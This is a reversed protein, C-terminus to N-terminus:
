STSLGASYAFYLPAFVLKQDPLEAYHASSLVLGRECNPYDHLLRHMSRLRGSPGSKVEIPLVSGEVAVLYDVEASSSKAERSWHHLSTGHEVMLEQGVFQEAMAGRFISLLDAKHFESETTIGCIHRWLGVDLLITKFKKPSATAGLPVGVPNASPIRNLLRARCLTNFAKKKTPASFSDSLRAYKILRGVNQSAGVLVEDLCAPDVRPSYKGFDQRFTSVLEDHVVFSEALSGTRAHVSVAEPMGGVFLYKRLEGLLFVHVAEGVPRPGALVVKAAEEHGHALLYEAFCLPHMELFQVRGVPFSAEGMAFELLSGAAIVHLEPMDEHFYRM